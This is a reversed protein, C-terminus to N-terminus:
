RLSVSLNKNLLQRRVFSKSTEMAGPLENQIIENYVKKAAECVKVTNGDDKKVVEFSIAPTKNYYSIARLKKSEIKIDAVDGLYIHVNPNGSVDLNKVDDINRFEADFTISEENGFEDIQGAPIKINASSLRAIVEGVTLNAKALKERNLEVHLELKNGGHIRVEGVGSINSFRPALKDDVFDYLEDLSQKGTLYMTIVPMANVNITQLVPTEVAPPFENIITNLKERVDHLKVNPDTGTVFELTTVCVNEMCLSTQKKLGEITAVADEIKKAVDVEIEEPSAGPYITSAVVYPVAMKPAAEMNIKRYSNIGILIFLLIFCCMAVKRNVSLEPLNM